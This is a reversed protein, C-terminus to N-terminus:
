VFAFAFPKRRSRFGNVLRSGRGPVGGSVCRFLLANRQRREKETKRGKCASLNILRRAKRARRKERIYIEDGEARERAASTSKIAGPFYISTDPFKARSEASSIPIRTFCSASLLGRSMNCEELGRSLPLIFLAQVRIWHHMWLFHTSMPARGAATCPPHPSQPGMPGQLLVQPPPRLYESLSHSRGAGALPPLYQMPSLFLSKVQLVVTFQM